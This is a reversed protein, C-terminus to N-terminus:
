ELGKLEELYANYEEDDLYETSLPIDNLRHYDFVDQYTWDFIPYVFDLNFLGNKNYAQMKTRSMDKGDHEFTNSKAGRNAEQIRSGDIQIKYGNNIIYEKMTETSVLSVNKYRPIVYSYLFELTRIDIDTPGPDNKDLIKKTNHIVDVNGISEALHAVVSSDKGGSHGVFIKGGNIQTLRDKAQQIKENLNKNVLKM